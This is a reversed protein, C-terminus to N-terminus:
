VDFLALIAVFYTVSADCARVNTKTHCQSAPLSLVILHQLLKKTWKWLEAYLAHVDVECHINNYVCVRDNILDEGEDKLYIFGIM